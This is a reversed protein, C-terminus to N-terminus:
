LPVDENILFVQDGGITYVPEGAITLWADLETPPDTLEPRVTVHANYDGPAIIRGSPFDCRVTVHYRAPALALTEDESWDYTVIGAAASAITCEFSTLTGDPHHLRFYAATCTSLDIPDGTIDQVAAAFSPLTDGQYIVLDPPTHALLYDDSM